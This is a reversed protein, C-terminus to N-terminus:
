LRGLDQKEGIGTADPNGWIKQQTELETLREKVKLADAITLKVSQWIKNPDHEVWGPKPFYQNFEAYAAAIKGGRRDYVIARSGTTGQDISLIYKMTQRYQLRDM